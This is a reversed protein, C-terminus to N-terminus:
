DFSVTQNEMAELLEIVQWGTIKIIPREGLRTIRYGMRVHGIKCSDILDNVKARAIKLMNAVEDVTYLPQFAVVKKLLHERSEKIKLKKVESATLKKNKHQINHIPKENQIAKVEAKMAQERNVLTEVTIKAIEYFWPSTIKHQSLRYVANLSIGVYLLKDDKDFYRYLNTKNM